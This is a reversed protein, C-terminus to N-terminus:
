DHQDRQGIEQQLEEKVDTGVASFIDIFQIWFQLDEKEDHATQDYENADTTDDCECPLENDDINGDQQADENNGCYKHLAANDMKM